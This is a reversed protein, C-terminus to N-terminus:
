LTTSSASGEPTTDNKILSNENFNVSRKSIEDIIDLDLESNKIKEYSSTNVKNIPDILNSYSKQIITVLITVLTFFSIFIFYSSLKIKKM